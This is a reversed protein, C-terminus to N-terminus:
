IPGLKSGVKLRPYIKPQNVVLAASTRWTKAEQNARSYYYHYLDGHVELPHAKFAVAQLLSSIESVLYKVPRPRTGRDRGGGGFTYILSNLLETRYDFLLLRSKRRGVLTISPSTRGSPKLTAQLRKHRM